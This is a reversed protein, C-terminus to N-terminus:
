SPQSHCRYCEFGTVNFATSGQHCTECSKKKPRPPPVVNSSSVEAHCVECALPQQNRLDVRHADHSFSAAVRWADDTETMSAPLEHCAGCSTMKPPYEKEHCDACLRHSPALVGPPVPAEPPPKRVFHCTDCDTKRHSQHSIGVVFESPERFSTRRPNPKWPQNHEHCGFCLASDKERFQEGHCGACPQHDANPVPFRVLGSATSAHCTECSHSKGVENHEAHGYAPIEDPRLVPRAINQKGAHCKLCDGLASFAAQGNHCQECTIMAPMPVSEGAPTAVNDHCDGCTTGETHRAHNQHSFARDVAFVTDVRQGKARGLRHCGECSAMGPLVREGHCDTKGCTEHSPNQKSALSGHCQHCAPKEGPPQQEIHQGHSFTPLFFPSDAGSRYPPYAVQKFRPRKRTLGVHCSQCFGLGKAPNFQTWKELHCPTCAAHLGGAKGVRVKQRWNDEAKLQHCRNCDKVHDPHLGHDFRGDRGDPISILSILIACGSLSM